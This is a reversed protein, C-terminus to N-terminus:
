WIDMFFVTAPIEYIRHLYLKIKTKKYKLLIFNQINANIFDNDIIIANAIKKDLQLKLGSSILRECHFDSHHPGKHLIDKVGCSILTM